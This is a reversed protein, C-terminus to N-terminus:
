PEFDVAFAHDPMVSPDNTRRAHVKDPTPKQATSFGGEDITSAVVGALQTGVQRGVEVAEDHPYRSSALTAVILKLAPSTAPLATVKPRRWTIPRCLWVVCRPSAFAWGSVKCHGARQRVGHGRPAPGWAPEGGDPRSRREGRRSRARSKGRSKRRGSM